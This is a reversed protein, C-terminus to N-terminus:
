VTGIIAINAEHVLRPKANRAMVSRKVQEVRDRLQLLIECLSYESSEIQDAVESGAFGDVAIEIAVQAEASHM